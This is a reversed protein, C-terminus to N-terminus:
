MLPFGCSAPGIEELQDFSKRAKRRKGAVLEHDVAETRLFGRGAKLCLVEFMPPHKGIGRANPEREHYGGERKTVTERNEV